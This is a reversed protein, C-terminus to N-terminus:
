QEALRFRVPLLALSPAPAGNKVAPRYTSKRVADLAADTFGFGAPEVVEVNMLRGREDIALRLVVRGEKNMRRAMLPYVPIERRVFNPGAASGFAYTEPANRNTGVAASVTAANHKEHSVIRTQAVLEEKKYSAIEAEVETKEAQQVASRRDAVASAVSKQLTAPAQFDAGSESGVLYIVSVEPLKQFGYVALIILATAVLIHAAGAALGSIVLSKNESSNIMIIHTYRYFAGFAAGAPKHCERGQIILYRRRHFLKWRGAPLRANINCLSL